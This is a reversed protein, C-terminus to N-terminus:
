RSDGDEKKQFQGALKGLLRCLESQEEANLCSFFERDFDEIMERSKREIERGTPTIYIRVCRQDGPDPRRTIFGNKELSQLMVTVTAASVHGERSLESQKCGDHEIIYGLMPPMGRGVGLGSMRCHIRAGHYRSVDVFLRGLEEM